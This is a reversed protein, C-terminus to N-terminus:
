RLFHTCSSFNFDITFCIRHHFLFHSSKKNTLFFSNPFKSSPFQRPKRFQRVPFRVRSYSRKDRSGSYGGSSVGPYSQGPSGKDPNDADIIFLDLSSLMSRGNSNVPGFDGIDTGYKRPDIGGQGIVENQDNYYGDIGGGYSGGSQKCM